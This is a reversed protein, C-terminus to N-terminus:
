RHDSDRFSSIHKTSDAMKYSDRNSSSTSSTQVTVAGSSTLFLDPEGAYCTQGLFLYFLTHSSLQGLFFFLSSSSMNNPIVTIYRNDM